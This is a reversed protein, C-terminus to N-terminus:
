SWTNNERKELTISSEIGGSLAKSVVKEDLGIADAIVYFNFIKSNSGCGDLENSLYVKIAEFAENCEELEQLKKPDKGEYKCRSHLNLDAM